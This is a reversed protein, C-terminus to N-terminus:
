EPITILTLSPLVVAENGAKEILTVAAGALGVTLRVAVGPVTALPDAEVSLQDVVFAVLQLAEPPHYPVSGVVPLTLVPGSLAVV